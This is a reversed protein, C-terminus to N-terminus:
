FNVVELPHSFQLSIIYFGRCEEVRRVRALVKNPRLCGHVEGFCVVCEVGEGEQFLPVATRAQLGGRSINLPVSEAPRAGLRGLGATIGTHRPVKYRRFVRGERRGKPIDDSDNM